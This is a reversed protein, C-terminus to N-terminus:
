MWYNNLCRCPYKNTKKTQITYRVGIELGASWPKYAGNIVATNSLDTYNNMFYHAQEQGPRDNRFGIADDRGSQGVATIAYNVYGQVLLDLHEVLPIAVGVKAFVTWYNKKPLTGKPSFGKETYFGHNPINTLTLGWPAYWGSHTLTGSGAYKGSLPLGYKGGVQATIYLKDQVPISFVISVPIEVAWYNQKEAWNNIDLTHDYKEGNTDTVGSWSLTGNLKAQQGYHQMDVGVGLGVYESFFWNYGLHAQLSYSGSTKSALNDTINTVKYGLSSYGGGVTVEFAHGRSHRAGTAAWLPLTIFLVILATLKRM